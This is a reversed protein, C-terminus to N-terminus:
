NIDREIGLNKKVLATYEHNKFIKLDKIPFIMSKPTSLLMHHTKFFSKVKEAQLDYQNYNAYVDLTLTEYASSVMFVNQTERILYKLAYEKIHKPINPKFTFHSFVFLEFGLKLLNPINAQRIIGKNEFKKRIKAIAQRSVGVKQAIKNDPFDPYKVLAYLIVKELNTLYTQQPKIIQANIDPEPLDLKFTRKLLPAFGFNNYIKTIEFPFFKYAFKSGEMLSHKGCFIEFEDVGKKATYYNPVISMSLSSHNTSIAFFTEALNDLFYANSAKRMSENLNVAFNGYAIRLIECGLYPMVPVRVTFFFDRHLLRRRIATVTSMKLDILSALQRDNKEPYRTLGYLTLKEKKTLSVKSM